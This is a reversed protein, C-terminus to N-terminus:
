KTFRVFVHPNRTQYERAEEILRRNLTRWSDHPNTAYETMDINNMLFYDLAGGTIKYQTGLRRNKNYMYVRQSVQLYKRILNLLPIPKKQAERAVTGRVFLISDILDKTKKHFRNLMTDKTM